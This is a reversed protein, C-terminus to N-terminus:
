SSIAAISFITPNLGALTPFYIFILRKFLKKEGLQEQNKGLV